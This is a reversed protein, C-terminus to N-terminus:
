TLVLAKVQPGFHGEFGPPVDAGYTRQESPAYFKEKLFCVTDTTLRIDQVVM